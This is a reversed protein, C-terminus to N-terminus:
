STHRSLWRDFHNNYGARNHQRIFRDEREQQLLQKAIDAQQDWYCSNLSPKHWESRMPGCGKACETEESVRERAGCRVCEVVPLSAVYRPRLDDSPGYPNATAQAKPPSPEPSSPTPWPSRVQRTPCVCDSWGEEANHYERCRPCQRAVM